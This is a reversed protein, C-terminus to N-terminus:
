DRLRDLLAMAAFPNREKFGSIVYAFVDRGAAMRRLRDAWGDLAEDSYGLFEDETTGMIRVYSFDATPEDITAKTADAALAMCVNHERAMAFCEPTDFSPHGVEMVHRLPKGGAERPLLKLFAGFDGPEFKKTAAFQWNIPGLKERLELVGGGIFRAVSEGADALVRRNTCYRSAKVSFVFGDPTEDRWRAFTEPKQSGYFTANIEISTLLSAAHALQSRHPLGAPFFTGRWPEFDWGGVGIRIASM